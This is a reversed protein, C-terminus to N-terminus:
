ASTGGYVSWTDTGTKELVMVENQAITTNPSSGNITIGTTSLTVGGAGTSHIAFQAGIAFPEASNLPITVTTLGAAAMMTTRNADHPMLTRNAGTRTGAPHFGGVVNMSGQVELNNVSVTDATAATINYGIAYANTATADSLAGFSGAGVATATAFYGAATANVGTVTTDPGIAVGRDVASVAAGEGLAVSYDGAASASPGIVVSDTGVGAVAAEVNASDTVDAGAEIGALKTTNTGIDTTHTAVLAADTYSVKATNAAVAAADTYSIKATNLAVAASDTYSVKATNATIESAQGATIGTKATNLAIATANTGIDTANTGIDTANTGIDTTHTAVLAADSYSIKATNATIESAQGSTIGTKATNAAIASNQSVQDSDIGALRTHHGSVDTGLNFVTTANTSVGSANTAINSTNTSVQASDTYSIKATNATIESAQGATIGTKATNASIDTLMQPTALGPNTADVASLVADTGTDSAVTSTGATWSLNSGSGSIPTFAVWDGAAGDWKLQDQDSVGTVDTDTLAAFTEPKAAIAATNAAVTAADDYTVKATNATIESAQGATIGTKATNLAIAATNIDTQSDDDFQSVYESFRKGSALSDSIDQEELMWEQLLMLDNRDAADVQRHTNIRLTDASVKIVEDRLTVTSDGLSLTESRLITVHVVATAEYSDEDPVTVSVPITVSGGEGLNHNDGSASGAGNYVASGPLYDLDRLTYPAPLSISVTESVKSDNLVTLLWSATEGTYAFQDSVLQWTVKM